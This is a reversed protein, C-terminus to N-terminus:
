LADGSAVARLASAIARSHTIQLRPASALLLRRVFLEGAVRRYGVDEVRQPRREVTDHLGCPEACDDGRRELIRPRVDYVDRRREEIPKLGIRLRAVDDRLNRTRSPLPKRCSFDYAAETSGGVDAAAGLGSIPTGM